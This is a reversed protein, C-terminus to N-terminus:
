VHARGIKNTKKSLFLEFIVVFLFGFLASKRMTMILLVFLLMFIPIRKKNKKQIDHLEYILAYLCLSSTMTVGFLGQYYRRVQFLTDNPIIAKKLLFDIYFGPAAIYLLLGIFMSIEVAYVIQKIVDDEIDAVDITYIVNWRPNFIGVRSIGKFIDKGSHQGMIWYMMIQLTHKSSPRRSLVKFDWLTDQTLFDGDGSDVVNTYGATEFTFGDVKVPGYKEFFSISREVMIRINSITDMDPETESDGLVNSAYRTNRLWVDYSVLKSACVISDDDIGKIHRLLVFAKARADVVGFQEAVKAGRLSIAFAEKVPTGLLFRSLYDIVLGIVSPHLNENDALNKNDFIEIINMKSLPLYGGAPQKIESIRQTVSSM